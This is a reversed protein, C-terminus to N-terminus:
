ASVAYKHYRSGSAGSERMEQRVRAADNRKKRWAAMVRRGEQSAPDSKKGNVELIKLEVFFPNSPRRASVAMALRM